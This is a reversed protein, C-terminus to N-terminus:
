ERPGVARRYGLYGILLLGALIWLVVTAPIFSVFWIRIRGILWALVLYVGTMLMVGQLTRFAPIESLPLLQRSVWISSVLYYPPMFLLFVNAQKILTEWGSINSVYALYGVWLMMSAVAAMLNLSLIWPEEARGPILDCVIWVLWPAVLVGLTILTAHTNLTTFLAELTMFIVISIVSVIIAERKSM